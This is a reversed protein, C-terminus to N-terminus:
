IAGRRKLDTYRNVLAIPLAQPEVDLCSIHSQELRAFARRRLELYQATAAHTLAQDLGGVPAVLAADLIQERLSALVVLHRQRLLSIAPRLTDDDEDRLNSILVVLSRKRQQQMLRVAAQYYDPQHLSAQLDFVGALLANLSLQSKRPPVYREVGGFTMLGVADGQRLAVHALLLAANLAHDLHSLEGDRAHMRRGCDLLLLIQQDREDRYERSVLRRMRASAKWDIQRPTDGERYERMQHFDMGEGRRRRRLVGLQSLRHDTAMLAYRSLASFNPYVRVAAPAGSEGSQQWLGLASTLRWEIQGFILHGRRSPRLRYRLAAGQGAPLLLTQPMGVCDCDAPHHDYLSLKLARAGPNDIELTIETEVGLSWSQAHRRRMTPAPQAWLGVADTICTALAAASVVVWVWHLAPLWSVIVALALMALWALLMSRTPILWRRAAGSPAPAAVPQGTPTM